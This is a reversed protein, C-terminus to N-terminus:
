PSNKKSKERRHGKRRRGTNIANSQKQHQSSPKGTDIVFM